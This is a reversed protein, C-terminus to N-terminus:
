LGQEPLAKETAAGSIAALFGFITSHPFIDREPPSVFSVFM